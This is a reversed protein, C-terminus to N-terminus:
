QFRMLLDDLVMLYAHSGDFFSISANLFPQHYHKRATSAPSPGLAFVKHAGRAGGSFMAVLVKQMIEYASARVRRQVRHAIHRM